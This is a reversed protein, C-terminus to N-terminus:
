RLLSPAPNYPLYGTSVPNLQRLQNLTVINRVMLDGAARDQRQNGSPVRTDVWTDALGDPGILDLRQWEPYGDRDGDYFMRELRGDRDFDLGVTEFYGDRDADRFLGSVTGTDLHIAEFRGDRDDDFIVMEYRGDADGDYRYDPIGNGDADSRWLNARIPVRASARLRPTALARAAVRSSGRALVATGAGRRIRITTARTRTTTTRWTLRVRNANSRISVRLRGSGLRLFSGSVAARSTVAGDRAAAAVQPEVAAATSGAPALLGALLFAPLIARRM